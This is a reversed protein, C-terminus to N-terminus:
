DDRAHLDAALETGRLAAEIEDYNVVLDRLDPSNQRVSQVRLSAPGVGLFRLLQARMGPRNLEEFHVGLSQQGAARLAQEVETYYAENFALHECLADPDVRVRQRARPLDEPRYAEWVGTREALLRSVYTRLRNRRRLVIKRVGADALVHRYVAENQRHTMKFGVAARGLPTQWIRRLFGLPNRDREDRTGLDLTGRLPVAYFIGGPNFVEHHCLVAPHSHLLTCLMNSGSRPVALIVFRTVPSPEGTM